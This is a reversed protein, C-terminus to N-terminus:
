HGYNFGIWINRGFWRKILFDYSGCCGRKRRKSYSSTMMTQKRGNAYCARINDICYDNIGSMHETLENAAYICDKESMNPAVERIDMWNVIM